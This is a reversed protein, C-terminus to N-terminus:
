IADGGKNLQILIKILESIAQLFMLIFVIPMLTKIPWIYPQWYSIASVEWIM